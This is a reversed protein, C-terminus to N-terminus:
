PLCQQGAAFSSQAAGHTRVKTRSPVISIECCFTPVVAQFCCFMCALARMCGCACLASPTRDRVDRAYHPDDGMVNGASGSASSFAASWGCILVTRRRSKDTYLALPFPLVNQVVILALQCLQSLARLYWCCVCACVYVYVCVCVCVCACLCLCLCM